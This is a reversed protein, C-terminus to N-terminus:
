PALPTRPPLGRAETAKLCLCRSAAMLWILNWTTESQLFAGPIPQLRLVLVCQPPHLCMAWCRWLNYALESDLYLLLKLIFLPKVRLDPSQFRAHKGEGDVPSPVPPLPPWSLIWAANERGDGGGWGPSPACDREQVNRASVTHPLALTPTFLAALPRLGRLTSLNVTTVRPGCAPADRPM